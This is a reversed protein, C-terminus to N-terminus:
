QRAERCSAARGKTAAHKRPESGSRGQLSRRQRLFINQKPLPRVTGNALAEQVQAGLHAAPATPGAPWVCAFANRRWPPPLAPPVQSRAQARGAGVRYTSKLAQYQLSSRRMRCLVSRVPALPCRWLHCCVPAPVGGRYSAPPAPSLQLGERQADVRHQHQADATAAGSYVGLTGQRAHQVHRDQKLSPLRSLHLGGHEGVCQLASLRWGTGAGEGACAQVAADQASARKPQQAHAARLQPCLVPPLGKRQNHRVDSVAVHHHTARGAGAIATSGNRHSHLHFM